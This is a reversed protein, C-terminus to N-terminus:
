KWGDCVNRSLRSCTVVVQAGASSLMQTVKFLNINDIQSQFLFDNISKLVTGSLFPLSLILFFFILQQAQLEKSGVGMDRVSSQMGRTNVGTKGPQSVAQCSPNQNM